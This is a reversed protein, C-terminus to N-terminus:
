CCSVTDSSLLLIPIQKDNILESISCNMLWLLNEIKYQRQVVQDHEKDVQNSIMYM